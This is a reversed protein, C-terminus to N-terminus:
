FVFIALVLAVTFVFPKTVSSSSDTTTTTPNSAITTENEAMTVEVDNDPSTISSASSSPPPSTSTNNNNNNDNAAETAVPGTIAMTSIDCAERLVVNSLTDKDHCDLAAQMKVIIDRLEANTTNILNIQEMADNLTDYFQIADQSSNYNRFPTVEGETTLLKYRGDCVIARSLEIESVICQRAAIKNVTRRSKTADELLPWLSLGDFDDLDEEDAGFFEMVTPALDLHTVPINIVLGGPILSPYRMMMAVRVGGDFLQDKAVMGHDMTFIILTSNLVGKAELREMLAGLYDDVWNIGLSTDRARAPLARCM